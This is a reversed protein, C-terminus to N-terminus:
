VFDLNYEMEAVAIGVVLVYARATPYRGTFPMKARKKLASIAPYTSGAMAKLFVHIARVHGDVATINNAV